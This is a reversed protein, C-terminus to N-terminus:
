VMLYARNASRPCYRSRRRIRKTRSFQRRLWPLVTLLNTRVARRLSERDHPPNPLLARRPLNPLLPASRHRVRVPSSSQPLVSEATPHVEADDPESDSSIYFHSATEMQNQVWRLSTALLHELVDRAEEDLAPEVDNPTLYSTTWPASDLLPAALSPSWVAWGPLIIVELLSMICVVM